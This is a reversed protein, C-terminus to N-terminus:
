DEISIQSLNLKLFEMGKEHALQRLTSTKGIGSEGELGIAIPTKGEEALRKNNDVIYGFVEKVQDATLSTKKISM